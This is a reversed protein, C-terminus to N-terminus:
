NSSLPLSVISSEKASKIAAFGIEVTARGDEVGSRPTRNNLVCEAFDAAIVVFLLTLIRNKNVRVVPPGILPDKLANAKISKTTEYPILDNAFNTHFISRSDERPNRKYNNSYYEETESYASAKRINCAWRITRTASASANKRM